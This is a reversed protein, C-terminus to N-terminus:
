KTQRFFFTKKEEKKKRNNIEIAKYDIQFLSGIVDFCKSVVFNQIM